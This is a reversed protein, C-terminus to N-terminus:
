QAKRYAVTIEKGDFKWSSATVELQDPKTGSDTKVTIPFTSAGDGPNEECTLKSLYTHTIDLGPLRNKSCNLEILSKNTSLELQPLRNNSCNLQSLSICGSVNLETLQNDQGNLMELTECGQLNLAALRNNQCQLEELTSCGDLNLKTLQNNFCHLTAMVPHGSLELETLRNDNCYINELLAKPNVLLKTLQNNACNLQLLAENRSLDLETLRNHSCNLEELATFREIGRLSTLTGPKSESGSVDLVTIKALEKPDIHEADSLYKKEVLLRLFEPDFGKDATPQEKMGEQTLNLPQKRDGYALEIRAKRASTGSNKEAKLEITQKGAKGSQPTVTLWDADSGEYTVTLSWDVDVTFPVSATLNEEAGLTWDSKELILGTKPAPTPTPTPAPTEHKSCGAAAMLLPVIMFLVRKM